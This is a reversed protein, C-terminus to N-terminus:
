HIGLWECNYCLPAPYAEVIARNCKCGNQLVFQYLFYGLHM